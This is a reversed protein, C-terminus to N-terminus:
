SQGFKSDPPIKKFCSRSETLNSFIFNVNKSNLASFAPVPLLASKQSM